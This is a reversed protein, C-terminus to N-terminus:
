ASKLAPFLGLIADALAGVRAEELDLGGDFELVSGHGSEAIARAIRAGKEEATGSLAIRRRAEDEDLHDRRALRGLQLAPDARVLLVRHNTHWTWDREAAVAASLLILGKRGLLRRRLEVELPGEIIEGLRELARGTQDAYVHRRVLAKEAMGGPGLVKEGFAEALRRSFDARVGPDACDYIGATVADMDIEDVSVKRRRLHDTLRAVITTKGCAIPGTICLRCQGLLREEMAEKVFLPVYERLDGQEICVAKAMSSSVHRLAPDAPLYLTEIGAVQGQHARALAMEPGLDGHDRLGRLLMRHGQRYLHDALLGTLIGVGITPDDRFLRKAMALREERTFRYRKEAHDAVLVRVAPFLRRARRVLSAHALTPPDASFAFVPVLAPDSM